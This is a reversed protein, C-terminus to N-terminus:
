RNVITFVAPDKVSINLAVSRENFGKKESKINNLKNNVVAKTDGEEYTCLTTEVDM